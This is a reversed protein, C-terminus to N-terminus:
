AMGYRSKSLIASEQTSLPRLARRFSICSLSRAPNYTLPHARASTATRQQADRKVNSLTGIPIGHVCHACLAFNQIDAFVPVRTKAGQRLVQRPVCAARLNPRRAWGLM